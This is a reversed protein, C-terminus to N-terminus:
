HTPWRKRWKPFINSQRRSRKPSCTWTRRPRRATVRQMMSRKTTNKVRAAIVKTEAKAAAQKGKAAAEADTAADMEDPGAKAKKAAAVANKRHRLEEAVEKVLAANATKADDAAARAATAKELADGCSLVLTEHEAKAAAFEELDTRLKDLKAHEKATKEFQKAINERGFEIPKELAEISQVQTRIETHAEAITNVCANILSTKETYLQRCRQRVQMTWIPHQGLNDTTWAPLPLELGNEKVYKQYLWFGRRKDSSDLM